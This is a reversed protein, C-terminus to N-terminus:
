RLGGYQPVGWSLMDAMQQKYRSLSHTSEKTLTFMPITCFMAHDLLTWQRAIEIPDVKVLLNFYCTDSNSTLANSGDMFDTAETALLSNLLSSEAPYRPLPQRNIDNRLLKLQKLYSQSSSNEVEDDSRYQDDNSEDDDDDDFLSQAGFIELKSGQMSDRLQQMRDMSVKAEKPKNANPSFAYMETSYGLEWKGMTHSLNVNVMRASINPGIFNQIADFRNSLILSSGESDQDNFLGLTSVGMWQSARERTVRQLAITVNEATNMIVKICTSGFIEKEDATLNLKKLSNLTLQIGQLLNYLDLEPIYAHFSVVWHYLFRLAGYGLVIRLKILYQDVSTASIFGSLILVHIRTTIEETNAINRLIGVFVQLINM